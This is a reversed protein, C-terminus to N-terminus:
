NALGVGFSSISFANNGKGTLTGRTFVTYVQSPSFTIMTDIKLTGTGADYIKIEKKGANLGIFTSAYQFKCNKLNVTDGANVTINFAASDPSANVFRIAFKIALTDPHIIDGAVGFPDEIKFAKDATEGCVFISYNDATDLTFSTTFLTQFSGSAKSFRYSQTGAPVALYGTSGGEYLASINNQRTGNVYYKITDATANNVNLTTTAVIPPPLDKDKCSLLGMVATFFLLVFLRANM